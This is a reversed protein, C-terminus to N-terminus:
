TEIGRFSGLEGRDSFGSILRSAQPRLPLAAQGVRPIILFLVLTIVITAASAALSLGLLDRRVVLPPATADAAEAEILLHRLMLLWTGIVLFVVFLGLFVISTTIPSIAVLMFFALFAIDRVDRLTRRTYLKVRLLFVLVHTFAGLMAPSLLLFELAGGLAALAVLATGLRPVPALRRRLGAQWASGAVAVAVVLAGPLGLLGGLVLAAI